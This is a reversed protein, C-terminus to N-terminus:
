IVGAKKLIYYVAVGIPIAGFSKYVGRAFWTIAGGMAILIFPVKYPEIINKYIWDWVWKFFDIIPDWIAKPLVMRNLDRCLDLPTKYDAPDLGLSELIPALEEAKPYGWEALKTKWRM